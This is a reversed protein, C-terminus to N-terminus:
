WHHIVGAIIFCNTILYSLVIVTRIAAIKDAYRDDHHGKQGLAKAWMSWFYKLRYSLPYKSRM